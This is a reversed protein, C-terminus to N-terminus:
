RMPMCIQSGSIKEFFFSKKVFYKENVNIISREAGSFLKKVLQFSKLAEHCSGQLIGIKVFFCRVNFNKSIEFLTKQYLKM